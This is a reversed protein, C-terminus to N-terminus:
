LMYSCNVKTSLLTCCCRTLSFGDQGERRNMLASVLFNQLSLSNFIYKETMVHLTKKYLLINMPGCKETMVHLSIYLSMEFLLKRDYRAISETM